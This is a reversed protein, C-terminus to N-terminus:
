RQVVSSLRASGGCRLRLQSHFDSNILVALGTSRDLKAESDEDTAVCFRFRVFTGSRVPLCTLHPNLPNATQALRGTFSATSGLASPYFEVESTM